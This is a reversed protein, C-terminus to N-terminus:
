ASNGEYTFRKPVKLSSKDRLNYSHVMSFNAAKRKRPMANTTSEIQDDVSMAHIPANDASETQSEVIKRNQHELSLDLEMSRVHDQQQIQAIPDHM